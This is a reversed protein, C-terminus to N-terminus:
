AARTFSSASTGRLSGSTEGSALIERLLARDTRSLRGGVVAPATKANALAVQRMRVRVGVLLLAVILLVAFAPVVVAGVGMVGAMATEATSVVPNGLGGTLATSAARIAVTGTQVVAALGGGAILAASWKLMPSLEAMQSATVITGAVISAPTAITDLAHDLWPVWYAVVELVSATGLAILAPTSALWAWNEGLSVMEAHGAISLIFVPVFVRFGCAAALGLGVLASLLVDM